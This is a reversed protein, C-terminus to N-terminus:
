RMEPTWLVRPPEIIGEQEFLDKLDGRVVPISPVTATRFLRAGPTIKNEDLALRRVFVLRRPNFESADGESRAMDVCDQAGIVNAIYCDESAVRGRHNLLTFRLFEIDAGAHRELLAKMRASVMLYGLANPIVDAIKLGKEEKARQFRLGSPYADGMRVGLGPKHIDPMGDPMKFIACHGDLVESVLLFYKNAGQPVSSMEMEQQALESRMCGTLRGLGTFGESVMPITHGRAPENQHAEEDHVSVEDVPAIRLIGGSSAVCSSEM